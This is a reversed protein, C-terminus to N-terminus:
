GNAVMLVGAMDGLRAVLARLEDISPRGNTATALEAEAVLRESQVESIWEAVVVQDSGSDLAARCKTLRERLGVDQSPGGRPSGRDGRLPWRRRRHVRPAGGPERPRLAPRDM